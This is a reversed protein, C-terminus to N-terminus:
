GTTPPQTTTTYISKTRYQDTYDCGRERELWRRVPVSRDSRADVTARDGRPPYLSTCHRMAAPGSGGAGWHGPSSRASAAAGRACESLVCRM